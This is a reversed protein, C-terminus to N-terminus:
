LWNGDLKIPSVHCFYKTRKQIQGYAGSPSYWRQVTVSHIVTHRTSKVLPIGRRYKCVLRMLATINVFRAALEGHQIMDYWPSPWLFLNRSAGTVVHIPCPCSCTWQPSQCVPETTCSLFLRRRGNQRKTIRGNAGLAPLIWQPRDRYRHDERNRCCIQSKQARPPDTGDRAGRAVRLAIREAAHERQVGPRRARIM